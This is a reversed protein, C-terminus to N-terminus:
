RDLIVVSVATGGQTTERSLDLELGRPNELRGDPDFVLCVLHRIDARAGYRAVDVLLEEGLSKASMSPRSHKLEVALEFEPLVFDVRSSGGAYSPAYDEPRIDDFFLRLLSRFLDQADFEDNVELTPRGGHRKLLERQVYLFRQGTEIVAQVADLNGAAFALSGVSRVTKLRASLFLEGLNAIWRAKEDISRRVSGHDGAAFREAEEQGALAHHRSLGNLAALSILRPHPAYAAGHEHAILDDLDYTRDRPVRYPPDDGTLYKFRAELAGFGYDAKSMNWHALAANSNQQAFDFYARLVALEAESSGTEKPVDVVSFSGADARSIRCFAICSVSAPHDTATYLNECGYHLAILDDSRRFLERLEILDIRPAM